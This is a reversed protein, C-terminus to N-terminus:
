VCRSTYLLCRLSEPYDGLAQQMEEYSKLYFNNSDFRMRNVDDLTKGTQICLMVDQTKADEAYVYHNDNTAVLPIDLEQSLLNLHYNIQM